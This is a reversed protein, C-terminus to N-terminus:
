DLDAFVEALVLRIPTGVVAFEVADIMAGPKCDYGGRTAPDVIWINEVGFTSYDEVRERTGSLTDSPSLIEICIIPPHTIIQEDPADRSLVCLDPVRFRTASVQVRLEPYVRINWDRRHQRFWATLAGQLRVHDKEGLNRERVEGDVYDCDPSYSTRLYEGVSILPTSAM